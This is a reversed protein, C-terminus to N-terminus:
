FIIQSKIWVHDKSKTKQKYWGVIELHQGGGIFINKPLISLNSIWLIVPYM